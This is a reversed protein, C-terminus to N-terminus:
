RAHKPLRLGMYPLYKSPHWWIFLAVCPDISSTLKAREFTERASGSTESSKSTCLGLRLDGSFISCPETFGSECIVLADFIYMCWEHQATYGTRGLSFDVM